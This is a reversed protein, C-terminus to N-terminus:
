KQTTVKDEGRLFSMKRLSSLFSPYWLVLGLVERQNRGFTQSIEKQQLSRKWKNNLSRTLFYINFFSAWSTLFTVWILAEMELKNWNGRGNTEKCSNKTEPDRDGERRGNHPSLCLSRSVFFPQLLLSCEERPENKLVECFGQKLNKLFCLKDCPFHFYLIPPWIHEGFSNLHNQCLINNSFHCPNRPLLTVKM